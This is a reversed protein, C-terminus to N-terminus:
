RRGRLALTAAWSGIGGIVTAQLFMAGTGVDVVVLQSGTLSVLVAIAFGVAAAELYLLRQYEDCRRFARVQTWALFLAAVVPV